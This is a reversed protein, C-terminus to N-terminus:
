MNTKRRGAGKALKNITVPDSAFQVEKGGAAIQM